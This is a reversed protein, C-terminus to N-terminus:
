PCCDRKLICSVLRPTGCKAPCEMQLCIFVLCISLRWFYTCSLHIWIFLFLLDYFDLSRSPCIEPGKHLWLQRTSLFIGICVNCVDMFSLPLSFFFFGILCGIFHHFFFICFVLSGYLSYLTCVHVNVMLVSFLSTLWIVSLTMQIRRSLPVANMCYTIWQGVVLQPM